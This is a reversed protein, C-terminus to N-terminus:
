AVSEFRHHTDFGTLMPKQPMPDLVPIVLFNWGDGVVQPIKLNVEM